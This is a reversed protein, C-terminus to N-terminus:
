PSGSSVRIGENSVGEQHGPPRAIEGRSVEPKADGARAPNAKTLRNARTHDARDCCVQALFDSTPRLTGGNRRGRPVVRRRTTGKTPTSVTVPTQYCGRHVAARPLAM